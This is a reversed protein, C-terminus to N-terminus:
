KMGRATLNGHEASLEDLSPMQGRPIWGTSYGCNCLLHVLGTRQAERWDSDEAPRHVTQAFLHLEHPQTWPQPM